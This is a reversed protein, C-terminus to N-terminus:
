KEFLNWYLCAVTIPGIGSPVPTFLSTKSACEPDIDGALKGTSESTGCDILVVGDKIMHPQVFHPQGLGTIVIDANAMAVLEADQDSAVDFAKYTIRERDFLQMIPEGVLKGKGLVVIAKNKFDDASQKLVEWVAAAVPPIRKSKGTKFLDIAEAGLVDIDKELAVADLIADAELGRPLPLQIVIGDFAKQIEHIAKCAEETTACEKEFIVAEIGLTKAVNSKIRMFSASRPDKAFAIFVVRKGSNKPLMELIEQAIKRGDIIM